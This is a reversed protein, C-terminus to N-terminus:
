GLYWMRFKGGDHIVTGYLLAHGFDPSGKPGCRLVPNAPHKRPSELTLRLNHQWGLQDEDFAFFTLEPQDPTRTGCRPLIGSCPMGM